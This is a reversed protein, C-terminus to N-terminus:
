DVTPKCAAKIASILNENGYLVNGGIKILTDLGHKAVPFLFRYNSRLVEVVSAGHQYRSFCRFMQIPMKRGYQAMADLYLSVRPGKFADTNM